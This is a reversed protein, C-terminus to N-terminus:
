LGSTTMQQQHVRRILDWHALTAATSARAEYMGEVAAAYDDAAKDAHPLGIAHDPARLQETFEDIEPFVSMVIAGSRCLLLSGVCVYRRAPLHWIPLLRRYPREHHAEAANAVISVDFWDPGLMKLEINGSSRTAVGAIMYYGRQLNFAAPSAAINSFSKSDVTDSPPSCVAHHRSPL